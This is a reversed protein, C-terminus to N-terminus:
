VATGVSVSGGDESAVHRISGVEEKDFHAGLWERSASVSADVDEAQYHSTRPRVVLAYLEAMPDKPRRRPHRLPYQSESAQVEGFDVRTSSTTGTVTTESSSPPHGAFTDVIPRWSTRANVLYDARRQCRHRRRRCLWIAIAVAIFAVLVGLGGLVGAVFGSIITQKRLVQQETASSPQPTSIALTTVTSTTTVQSSSSLQGTNTTASSARRELSTSGTDGPGSTSPVNSLFSNLTPSHGTIPSVNRAFLVAHLPVETATHELDWTTLVQHTGKQPSPYLTYDSKQPSPYLTYDSTM